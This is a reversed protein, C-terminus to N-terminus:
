FKSKRSYRLGKLARDFPVLFM